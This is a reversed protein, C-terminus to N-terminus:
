LDLASCLGKRGFWWSATNHSGAPQPLGQQSGSHHGSRDHVHINAVCPDSVMRPIMLQLVTCAACCDRLPWNHNGPEQDGLREGEVDVLTVCRFIVVHAASCACLCPVSQFNKASRKSPPMPSGKPSPLNSAPTPNPSALNRRLFPPCLSHIKVKSSEFQTPFNPFRAPQLQRINHGM